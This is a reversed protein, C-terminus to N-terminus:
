PLNGKPRCIGIVAGDIFGVVRDLGGAANFIADCHIQASDVVFSSDISNMILQLKSDFLHEVTEWFIESLHSEWKGFLKTCDRWRVPAAM